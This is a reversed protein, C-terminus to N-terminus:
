DYSFMVMETSTYVYINSDEFHKLLTFDADRGRATIEAIAADHEGFFVYACHAPDADFVAPNCLHMVRVFPFDTSAWFAANIKWDSAIAIKECQNWASFVTTIDEEELYDAVEEYVASSHPTLFIPSLKQSCNFAFLMVLFAATLYYMTKGGYSHLFVIVIAVLPYLLFYYIERGLITTFIDVALVCAVSIGFLFLCVMAKHHKVQLLKRVIFFFVSLFIFSQILMRLDDTPAFLAFLNSLSPFIDALADSLGALGINGFIEVQTVTVARAFLLGSFNSATILGAALWSKDTIRKKHVVHYLIKLMEVGVLPFVMVLTQRLSQIGTAFSLACAIMLAAIFRPSWPSSSRLYCGFSWFATIAYCAYYSCMTFLLQWGNLSFYSDGFALVLTLFAVMAMLRQRFTKFVPKLMYNFSFLAGFTMATSAMGMALTPDGFLGYFLSCVVPTAVVYLQNGFVWSEPFISKQNWAEVAYAMDTYMDTTYRIPDGSFNIHLITAIYVGLILFLVIHLAYTKAKQLIM